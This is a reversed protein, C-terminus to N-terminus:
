ASVAEKGAAPWSIRWVTGAQGRGVEVTARMQVGISRVLRLGLSSANAVDFDDPLGVGDDGVSLTVGAADAKLGVRVEGKRGDPFAHKLANSLLETVLMGCHVAFQADMTMSQFDPVVRVASPAYATTLGDMLRSLYEAMDLTSLNAVGYLAEHVLAMSAIRDRSALLPGRVAEESNAAAALSLLSSVIQLNNKVRHHIEKLLTEKELISARQGSTLEGLQVAMVNFSRSLHALEDQGLAEVRDSFDGTSMRRSARDLRLLPAIFFRRVFFTGAFFIGILFVTSGLLVLLLRGRLRMMRKEFESVVQDSLSRLRVFTKPGLRRAKRFRSSGRPAAVLSDLDHRIEGWLGDVATLSPVVEAPAAPIPVGLVVGGRRLAGLAADFEAILHGLGPRDEDQGSSVMRAWEYLEFSLMRQRGAVNIIRVDDRMSHFAYTFFGLVAFACLVPFLLFCGVKM